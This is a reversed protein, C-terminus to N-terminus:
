SIGSLQQKPGVTFFFYGQCSIIREALKVILEVTLLRLLKAPIETSAKTRYLDRAFAVNKYNLVTKNTEQLHAIV